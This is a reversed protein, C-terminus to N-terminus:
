SEKESELFVPISQEQILDALTVDQLFAIYADRVKEWRHHVPCPPPALSCNAQKLMCDPTRNVPEVANIIDILTIHDPRRALAFGGGLGKRSILIEAQALQRMLKGLYNAPAGTKKAIAAAGMYTGEPQKALTWMSRIVHIATKSFM